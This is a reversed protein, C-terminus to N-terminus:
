EQELMERAKEPTIVEVGTDVHAPIEGGDLVTKLYKVSLYGMEEPKQEIIAQIVGQACYRLTDPLVDFAIIKVEGAKGMAAIAEAAGPGGPANVGFIGALDPHATLLNEAISLALAQDSQCAQESVLRIDPHQAIVRKFGKLREMLNQAGPVGTIIALDGRGGLAKVMEEGAVEGAKENDTGIYSLRRDTNADSDVTVVPIGAEVAKEIVPVLAEGDCPSIALADIGRSILNEVIESQKDADVESPPGIFSLDVGLEEAAQEAGKKCRVWYEGTLAKPVVAIEVREPPAETPAPVAPEEKPRACGLLSLGLALVVGVKGGTGLPHNRM